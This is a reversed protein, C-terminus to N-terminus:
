ASLTDLLARAVRLDATAFGETFRDYVAALEARAEDERAQTVRLRALSLAIRLEWTLAGQERAMVAARALCDEAAAVSEDASQQLLIETKTRLLEPVYWQQGDESGGAGAIAGNVADLAEDLRGLGALALALSGMFEPYSLRWGTQACIDFAQRLEALGEHYAGREVLLKGRLFRGATTWFPANLSTALDILQVIANEAVTFDGTMPAIRGIGFYIVRCISLRDRSVKAEDVSRQAEDRAREALGQLWLVRALSAQALGRDVAQRWLPLRDAGQLFPSQITRELLHRAEGLRGLTMLRIGFRRDAVAAAYPDGVQDTIKGSREAAALGRAYDGRYIYIGSLVSLARAQADLDSLAEAIALADTLATEAEESPGLTHILANGLGIQLRMRTRSNSQQTADLHRLARGCQERCEAMLSLSLWVPAYAAALDIGISREGSSSFCWDLAARINDIERAYTAVDITSLGLGFDTVVPASLDRFYAAHRRAVEDAEGRADLKDFAYSRITELLRWRAGAEPAEITVLSKEILSAVGDIVAPEGSESDGSVAVAADLTFGTPFVALRCLLAREEDALLDYSWDFTARLTQQRPLATRRGGTLLAFRDRLGSAVQEIGLTAARAAAFEIALPIGDLRRCISAILPLADADPEYGSDLAQARAIFLEVASHEGIDQEGEGAPVDLPPVRYVYEGAVRLIERSTALLVTRPCLRVIADVLEAVASIIHECNDLILLLHQQGIARGVTDSSITDGLTLGLISAVASPLLAPDSLAALEVLRCGDAFEPMVDRAVQLALATKGIGGPGTLTVVRYASILDRLSRTAASRGVLPAVVVPLNSLPVDGTQSLQVVPAAAPPASVAEEDQYHATWDGLLRYGRGSETRLMARRSGLAKRLASVHVQLASDGVISGPWIRSMLEDKSLLGGAAEVLAEVIDFARGGIPVVTGDVRFERRITDIECDGSSYVPRLSAPM